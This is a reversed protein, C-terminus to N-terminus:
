KERMEPLKDTPKMTNNYVTQYTEAKMFAEVKMWFDYAGNNPLIFNRTKRLKVVDILYRTTKETGVIDSVSFFRLLIDFFGDIKTPKGLVKLHETKDQFNTIKYELHATLYFNSVFRESLSFCKDMFHQYRPNIFSYADRVSEDWVIRANTENKVERALADNLVKMYSLGRTSMAYEDKCREFVMHDGEVVFVIFKYNGDKVMNEFDKVAIDAVAMSPCQFHVVCPRYEEPFVSPRQLIDDIGTSGVFDLIYFLTQEPPVGYSKARFADSMYFMTKGSGPFGELKCVIRRGTSNQVIQAGTRRLLHTDEQAVVTKSAGTSYAVKQGM